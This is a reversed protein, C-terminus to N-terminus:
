ATYILDDFTKISESGDYEDIVFRTGPELWYVEVDKAGGMYSTYGLSEAFSALNETGNLLVYDVLRSDFIMAEGQVEGRAWSSWGAGFGPAILVAVKGEEDYRKEYDMTYKVNFVM